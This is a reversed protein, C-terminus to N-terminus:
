TAIGTLFFLTRAAIEGALILAAVVYLLGTASDLSRIRATRWAMVTAALPVALGFVARVGFFVLYDSFLVRVSEPRPGPLLLLLPLLAIQAVVAGTCLFTLQILPRLSLTPTVLYWHGLSLAALASGLALAGALVALPTGLGLLQASPTVLAAAWLAGLGLLPVLPGLLRTVPNWSRSGLGILYVALLVDFAISLTREVAFWLAPSPDLEPSVPPPFATRLWVALAGLVVLCLGTFLTYGRSVEERLHVWFLAIAGGVAAELLLLYTAQPLAQM